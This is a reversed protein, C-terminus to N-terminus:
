SEGGHVTGGGGVVEYAGDLEDAVMDSRTIQSRILPSWPVSTSELVATIGGTLGAPSGWTVKESKIVCIACITASM